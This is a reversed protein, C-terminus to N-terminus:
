KFIEGAEQSWWLLDLHDMPIGTEQAFRHFKEEIDFYVKPTLSKPIEEIIGNGHLHKLIHRDLIALNEYGINRLFHSAEKLGMGKVNAVLWKRAEKPDKALKERLTFDSGDHFLKRAEMIYSSKNVNFRVGALWTLVEQQSGEYLKGNSKLKEIARWCTKAKSQPTLLCFCLEAFLDKESYTNYVDKFDQLRKEIDEKKMEYNSKVKNDM